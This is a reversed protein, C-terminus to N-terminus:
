YLTVLDQPDIADVGKQPAKFPVSGDQKVYKEQRITEFRDDVTEM